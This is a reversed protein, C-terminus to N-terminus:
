QPKASQPQSPASRAKARELQRSRADLLDKKLKAQEDTTMGPSDPGAPLVEVPPYVHAAVPPPAEARADMVSSAPNTTVCGGLSLGLVLLLPRLATPLRRQGAISAIRM